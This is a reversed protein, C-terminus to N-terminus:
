IKYDVVLDSYELIFSGWLSVFISKNRIILWNFILFDFIGFIPIM